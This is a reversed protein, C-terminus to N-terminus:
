VPTKENEKQTMKVDIHSAGLYTKCGGDSCSSSEEYPLLVWWFTCAFSFGSVSIPKVPMLFSSTHRAIWLSQLGKLERHISFLFQNFFITLLFLFVQVNRLLQYLLFFSSALSLLFSCILSCVFSHNIFIEDFFCDILWRILLGLVFLLNFSTLFFSEWFLIHCTLHMLNWVFYTIGKQFNYHM